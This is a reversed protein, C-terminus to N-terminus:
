PGNGVPLGQSRILPEEQVIEQMQRLRALQPQQIVRHVVGDAGATPALDHGLQYPAGAGALREHEDDFVQM